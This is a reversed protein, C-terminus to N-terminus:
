KAGRREHERARLAAGDRQAWREAGGVIGALLGLQGTLAMNYFAAPIKGCPDAYLLMCGELHGEDTTRFYLINEPCKMRVVNKTPPVAKDIYDHTTFSILIEDPKDIALYQYLLTEREKVLSTPSAVISQVVTENNGFDKILHRIRLGLRDEEPTDPGIEIPIVETLYKRLEAITCPTVMKALAVEFQAGDYKTKSVYMNNVHKPKPWFDKDDVIKLFKESHEKCIQVIEERQEKTLELEFPQGKDEKKSSGKKKGKEM